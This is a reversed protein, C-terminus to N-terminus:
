NKMSPGTELNFYGSAIGVGLTFAFFGFGGVLHTNYRKQRAENFQQWSGSPQPMENLSAAKITSVTYSSHRVQNSLSRGSVTAIKTILHMKRCTIHNAPRTCISHLKRQCCDLYDIGM